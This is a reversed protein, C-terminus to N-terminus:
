ELSRTLQPLCACPNLRMNLSVTELIKLQSLILIFPHLFVLLSLPLSHNTKFMSCSIWIGTLVHPFVDGQEGRPGGTHRRGLDCTKSGSPIPCVPGGQTWKWM